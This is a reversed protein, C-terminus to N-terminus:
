EHCGQDMWRRFKECMEPAWPVGGAQPPPMTGATVVALINAANKKVDDFSSLDLGAAQMHAVDVDTFLPRIDKAFSLAQADNM